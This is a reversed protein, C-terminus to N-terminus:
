ISGGGGRGGGVQLLPGVWKDARIETEFDSAPPPQTVKPSFFVPPPCVVVLLWSGLISSYTPFGLANIRRLFSGASASPRSVSACSLAPSLSTGPMGQHGRSFPVSSSPFCHIDPLCRHCRKETMSSNQMFNQNPIFFLRPKSSLFFSLDFKFFFHNCVFENEGILYHDLFPFSLFHNANSDVLGQFVLLPYM